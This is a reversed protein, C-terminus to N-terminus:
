QRAFVLSLGILTSNHFQVEVVHRNGRVLVTMNAKLDAGTVVVRFGTPLVRGTLEGSMEYARETWTGRLDQGDGQVESVIDVRGSASACRVTQKLSRGAQGLKYTARCKVMETQGDKFGLRGKGIWWGALANFPKTENAASLATNPLAAISGM